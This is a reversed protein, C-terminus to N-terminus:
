AFKAVEPEKVEKLLKLIIDETTMGEAMRNVGRAEADPRWRDQFNSEGGVEHGTALEDRRGDDVLVGAGAPADLEPCM